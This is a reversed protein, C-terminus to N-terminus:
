GEEFLSKSRGGKDDPARLLEGVRGLDRLAAEVAPVLEELAEHAREPDSGALSSAAVFREWLKPPVAEALLDHARRRTAGKTSVDALSRSLAEQREAVLLVKPALASIRARAEREAAVFGLGKEPGPPRRYRDENLFYGLLLVAVVAGLVLFTATLGLSAGAAPRISGAEFSSGSSPLPHVAALPAFTRM